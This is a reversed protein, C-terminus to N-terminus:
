NSQFLGSFSKNEIATYYESTKAVKNKYNLQIEKEEKLFTRRKAIVM